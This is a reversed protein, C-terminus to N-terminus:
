GACLIVDRREKLHSTIFSGFDITPYVMEVKVNYHCDKILRDFEPWLKNGDYHHRIRWVLAKVRTCISICSEYEKHYRFMKELVELEGALVRGRSNLLISVGNTENSFYSNGAVRLQGTIEVQAVEFYLMDSTARRRAIYFLITMLKKLKGSGRFHNLIDGLGLCIQHNDEWVVQDAENSLPISELIDSLDISAGVMENMVRRGSRVKDQVSINLERAINGLRDGSIRQILPSGHWPDLWFRCRSGDGLKWKTKDQILRWGWVLGNWGWIGRISGNLTLFGNNQLYKDKYVRAWIGDDMLLRSCRSALLTRNLDEVKHLGIGGFDYPNCLRAWSIHHIHRVSDGDNWLFRMCINELKKNIRCNLTKELFIVSKDKNVKMSSFREFQELMEKITCFSRISAKSVMLVDDAYMVAVIVQSIKRVRPIHINKNRVEVQIKRNFIKMILIFLYPSMRDGQRLGKYATFRDGLCGNVVLEYSVTSVCKMVLEIWRPHFGLVHVSNQLFKWLVRGYAKSLDLKLFCGGKSWFDKSNAMENAWLINDQIQRGKSFAAQNRQVLRMIVDRMRIVLIKAIVKYITNCLSIPRYDEIRITNPKKAILCIMTHNVSGVLKAKLFFDQVAAVVDGGIISWCDKYFYNPFGDPGATSDKDLSKVAMVIKERMIPRLMWQNEEDSVMNDDKIGAFLERFAVDVGLAQQFYTTCAQLINDEETHTGRDVEIARIYRKTRQCNAMIHFYSTNKDGEALWRVRSRQKWMVEEMCLAEKLLGRIEHEQKLVELDGNEVLLRCHDLRLRLKEIRCELRGFKEANWRLLAAKVLGLKKLLKILPCGTAITAWEKKVIDLGDIDMIWPKFLRFPRRGKILRGKMYNRYMSFSHDSTSSTTVKLERIGGFETIWKNNVFCWDLKCLITQSGMRHNSWTFKKSPDEVESLNCSTIFRNFAMSSRALSHAGTKNWSGMMANFDEIVMCPGNVRSVVVELRILSELRDALRTPLYIGFIVFERRDCLDKLCVGVWYTDEVSSLVQLVNKKWFVMIRGRGNLMTDNSMFDYETFKSMNVNLKHSYAEMTDRHSGKGEVSIADEIIKLQVVEGKPRVTMKRKKTGPSHAMLLEVLRTPKLPPRGKKGRGTYCLGKKSGQRSNVCKEMCLPDSEESVSSFKLVPTEREEPTKCLCAEKEGNLNLLFGPPGDRKLNFNSIIRMSNSFPNPNTAKGGAGQNSAASTSARSSGTAKSKGKRDTAALAGAKNKQSGQAGKSHVNKGAQSGARDHPVFSRVAQDMTKEERGSLVSFRNADIGSMNPPKHCNGAWSKALIKVKSWEDRSEEEESRICVGDVGMSIKPIPRFSLPVEICIRAYGLREMQLTCSDARVFSGGLAQAISKYSYDAWFVSPLVPLHIWIPVSEEENIKMEMRPKWRSAILFHGGVSWTRHRLVMELEEESSVRVLLRGNGIISFRPNAVSVWLRRLEQFVHKFDLGVNQCGGYLSAIASFNFRQEMKKYVESPININVENGSRVVSAAPWEAEEQARSRNVVNAWSKVRLSDEESPVNYQGFSGLHGKQPSDEVIGEMASASDGEPVSIQRTTSAGGRGECGKDGVFTGPLWAYLDGGITQVGDDILSRLGRRSEAPGGCVLEVMRCEADLWWSWHGVPSGNTDPINGEREHAREKGIERKFERLRMRVPDGSSPLVLTQMEEEKEKEAVTVPGGVGEAERGITYAGEDASQLLLLLHGSGLAKKFCSNCFFFRAFEEIIPLLSPGASM